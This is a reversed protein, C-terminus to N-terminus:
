VGHENPLTERQAPIVTRRLGQQVPVARLGPAHQFGPVDMLKIMRRNTGAVEGHGSIANMYQRVKAIFSPDFCIRLDAFNNSNM